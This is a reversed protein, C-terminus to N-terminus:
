RSLVIRSAPIESLEAAHAAIVVMKGSAVLEAVLAAVLRVGDRDLNADPEDLLVIQADQLLIRALAVRQRQGASLEGVRVGLADSQRARLTDLLGVRALSAAVVEDSADARALRMATRVSHYAEGLYPRQPLYAMRRRLGRLDLDALNAAGLRVVGATPPRLGMLLRLVTSKGGGNVGVVVLPEGLNWQADLDAIVPADAAGYRFTVKELVCRAPLAPVAAGPRAVEARAPTDLLAVFPALIPASRVLEHVGFVVGLLAPLGAALLLAEGLVTTALAERSAGDLVVVVAVAAAGAVLPVRGLLASGLSARTAIQTYKALTADFSTAFAQEGGRSVLELRGEVAVLMGDAVQEAAHLVRDQMRMTARRLALLSAVVVVIGLAALALVRLPFFSALLPAIILSAGIDAALAPLTGAILSRGHHNAEFVVRQLDEDPVELVDADLLARSAARHLDCEAIVRASALVVRQAVFAIGAVAFLVAADLTDGHAIKGATAVVSLRGVLSLAAGSAVLVRTRRSTCALLSRWIIRPTPAPVDSEVM